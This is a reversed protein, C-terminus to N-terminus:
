ERVEKMKYVVIGHCVFKGDLKRRKQSYNFFNEQVVKGAALSAHIFNEGDIVIGEHGIIIGKNFLGKRVIGVGCIRPFRKLMEKSINKRPIYNLEVNEQWNLPLFHTGDQKRNLVMNIARQKNRDAISDTILYFYDSTLLRHTTYHIRNKYTIPDEGSAVPYYNVYTMFSEAQEFSRSSALAVNTLIFATCNTTTLNFVPNPDYGKGDGIPKLSYPTNLRQLTIARLRSNFDPYNKRLKSLLQNIETPSLEYFDKKQMATSATNFICCSLIFLHILLLFIKKM